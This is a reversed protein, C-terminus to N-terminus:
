YAWARRRFKVLALQIALILAFFVVGRAAAQATYGYDFANLYINLNMTESAFEPGGGTIALIIDFEKVAFISRLILAVAIHARLLPLTIYRFSRWSSAGDIRAAEYPDIPLAQLGALLLLTMFPTHQWVSVLVLSPIAWRQSSLWEVPGLGVLGLAHNLLGYTHDFFVKWVLSIATPMAITPLLFVSRYVTRGAIQRNLLLAVALGLGLQLLVSAGAFYLTHWIALPWRPDTWLSLYNALGVFRRREPTYLYWDTLSTWLVLGVPFAVLGLLLVATPLSFLVALQRDVWDSVRGAPRPGLRGAPHAEARGTARWSGGAARGM